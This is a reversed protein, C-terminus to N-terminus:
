NKTLEDSSTNLIKSSLHTVIADIGETGLRQILARLERKTSPLTQEEGDIECVYTLPMVMNMYVENKASDGVVEVIDYQALAGPKKLGIRLSGTTITEVANATNIIEDSPRITVKPKKEM